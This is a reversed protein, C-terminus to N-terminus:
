SVIDNFYLITFVYNEIKLIEIAFRLFTMLFRQKLTFVSVGLRRQMKWFIHSRKFERVTM